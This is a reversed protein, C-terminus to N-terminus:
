LPMANVERARKMRRSAGLCNIAHPAVGTKSGDAAPKGAAVAQRGLLQARKREVNKNGGYYFPDLVGVSFAM